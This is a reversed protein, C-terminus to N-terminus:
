FRSIGRSFLYLHLLSVSIVYAHVFTFLARNSKDTNYDMKGEKKSKPAYDKIDEPYLHHMMDVVVVPYILSSGGGVGNEHQLYLLVAWLFPFDVCTSFLSLFSIIM